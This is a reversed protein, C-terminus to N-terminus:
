PWWGKSALLARSQSITRSVPALVIEIVEAVTPVMHDLEFLPELVGRRLSKGKQELGGTTTRRFVDATRWAIGFVEGGDAIGGMGLVFM